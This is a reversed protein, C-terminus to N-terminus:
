INTQLVPVRPQVRDKKISDAVMDQATNTQGMIIDTDKWRDMTRGRGGPQDFFEDTCPSYYSRGRSVFCDCFATLFFPLLDDYVLSVYPNCNYV